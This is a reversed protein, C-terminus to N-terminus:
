GIKGEKICRALEKAFYTIYIDCGARYAGAAMECMIKEEDIGGAAAAMKVMAYEGSVSYAAVPVQVMDRVERILDGYALAPKVMVIDAGEEIDFRVEKLAELRNHYDMQYTKRDGFAPASDAAERFPGYFASAFKASYAMIPIEAFSNEDLARRIAAVRGDMMDSPAIMDAGARAQSVAIKALCPLTRDNDVDQGCLIGCHGHSTYECMCLDAICYIDPYHEKTYRLARQVIGDDAYAGSGAEDKHDPIGFFLVASVGAQRLEEMMEPLRDISYRYQGPMSTIEEKKGEGEVVFVPYVLSSIDMRTERVMKRLLESGRLRRTRKIGDM